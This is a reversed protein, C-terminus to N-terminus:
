SNQNKKELSNIQRHLATTLRRLIQALCGKKQEDTLLGLNKTIELQTEIEYLSGRAMYLYRLYNATTNQASGEAIHSPISVAGRRLQSSLGYKEEAPFNDTARYISNVFKLGLQWTKLEKYGTM